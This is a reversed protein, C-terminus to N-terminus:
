ILSKLSLVLIVCLKFPHINHIAEIYLRIALVYSTYSTNATYEFNYCTSTSSIEVKYSRKVKHAASHYLRYCQM